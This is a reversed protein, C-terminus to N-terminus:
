ISNSKGRMTLRNQELLAVQVKEPETYSTGRADQVKKMM